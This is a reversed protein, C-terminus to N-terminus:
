PLLPIYESLQPTIFPLKRNFMEEYEAYAQDLSLTPKKDAFAFPKYEQAAIEGQITKIYERNIKATEIVKKKQRIDLESAESQELIKKTTEM